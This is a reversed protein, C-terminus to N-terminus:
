CQGRMTGGPRRGPEVALGVLERVSTGSRLLYAALEELIESPERVFSSAGIQVASAGALLFEAVDTGSSVGGCGVVPIGVERSVEYVVRLALPKIAPGSLGGRVLVSQHDLDVTLAPVTNILTVADAGAEVAAAANGVAGEYTLKALVPKRSCRTRCAAVVGAVNRPSECFTLGGREVNPCSLNIEVAAVCDEAAMRGALEAFEEVTEGAISVVLPLGVEFDQLSELFHNVGPNQLGISNVLGAPTEAIRPPPNGTRSKLTVTKPLMAGYAAVAEADLAERSLTGAAPM